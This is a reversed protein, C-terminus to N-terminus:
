RSISKETKQNLQTESQPKAGSGLTKPPMVPPEPYENPIFASASNEFLRQQWRQFVTVYLSNEECFQSIPKKELLHEQLMRAKDQPSFNRRERESM